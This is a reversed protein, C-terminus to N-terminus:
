RSGPHAGRANGCRPAGPAAPAGSGPIIGETQPMGPPVPLRSAGEGVTGDGQTGPGPIIGGTRAMWRRVPFRSRVTVVPFRATGAPRQWGGPCRSGPPDGRANGDEPAGHGAIAGPSGPAPIHGTRLMGPPVPLAGRGHWGGPCRPGFHCRPEQHEGTAAVGAGRSQSGGNGATGTGGHGRARPLRQPRPSCGGREGWLQVGPPAGCTGNRSGPPSTAGQPERLTGRWPVGTTARAGPGRGAHSTDGTRSGGRRHSATGTSPTRHWRRSDSPTM